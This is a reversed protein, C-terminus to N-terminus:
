WQATFEVPPLGEERRLRDAVAALEALATDSLGPAVRSMLHVARSREGRASEAAAVVQSDIEVLYSGNGNQLASERMHPM